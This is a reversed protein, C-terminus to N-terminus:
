RKAYNGYTYTKTVGVLGFPEPKDNDLVIQLRKYKKVKKKTFIDASVLNSSFDVEIFDFYEFTTISTDFRGLEEWIDGDKVLYVNCGTQYYPLLLAMTGKKMLTKLRQPAGDDDFLSSWRAKVPTGSPDGTDPDIVLNDYYRVHQAMDDNWAYTYVSDAFYMRNNIVFMTQIDPMNNFIYCEYSSDGYKSTDKHRGDLVYMRGNVYIYFYHNFEIGVANQLNEEKCLQRNIKGSRNVTYKESLYNTSLGYVGTKALIIPEDNMVGKVRPALCGVGANSTKVVYVPMALTSDYEGKALYITNNGTDEGIIALASTTKAFRVIDDDVSFYFNDDIVFPSNARSYYANNRYALFLRADFWEYTDINYIEYRKKNYYGSVIEYEADSEPNWPVYTIRVNPVGSPVEITDANRFRLHPEGDVTVTKYPQSGSAFTIKADSLGSQIFTAPDDPKPSAPDTYHSITYGSDLTIWQYDFSSIVEVKVIDSMYRLNPIVFETEDATDTQVCYEITRFPTLLNVGKTAGTIDTGDPLTVMEKGNPKYMTMVVPIFQADPIKLTMIDPDTPDVPASLTYLMDECIGIGRQVKNITDYSYWAKSCLVYLIGGAGFVAKVDGCHKSDSIQVVEANDPEIFCGADDIGLQFVRLGSTYKKVAWPDGSVSAIGVYANGIVRYGSRKVPNGGLDSIMNIMEPSRRPSVETQDNQLDIGLLNRYHTTYEKPAEPVKLQAM